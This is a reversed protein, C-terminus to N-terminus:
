EHPSPEKPRNPWPSVVGTESGRTIEVSLATFTTLAAAPSSCEAHVVFSPKSYVQPDPENPLSPWPSGVSSDVGLFTASSCSAPPARATSFTPHPKACVIAMQPEYSIRTHPDPKLPLSPNPSSWIRRVGVGIGASLLFCIRSM